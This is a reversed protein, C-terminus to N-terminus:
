KGATTGAETAPKSESKEASKKHQKHKKEEHKKAAHKHKETKPKDTAATKEGAEPNKGPVSKAVEAAQNKSICESQYNGKEAGELKMNKANQDCRAKKHKQKAEKVKDPTGVEALCTKMFNEREAQNVKESRAACDNNPLAFATPAISILLLCTLAAIHKM